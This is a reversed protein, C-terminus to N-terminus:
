VILPSIKLEYVVNGCDNFLDCAYTPSHNNEITSQEIAADNPDAIIKQAVKNLADEGSSAMVTMVFHEHCGTGDGVVAYKRM